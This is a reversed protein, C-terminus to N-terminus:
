TDIVRGDLAAKKALNCRDTGLEYARTVEELSMYRTRFTSATPSEYLLKHMITPTVRKFEAIWREYDGLTPVYAKGSDKVRLWIWHALM